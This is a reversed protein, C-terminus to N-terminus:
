IENKNVGYKKRRERNLINKECLKDFRWDALIRGAVSSRYQFRGAYDTEFDSSYIRGGYTNHTKCSRTYNETM